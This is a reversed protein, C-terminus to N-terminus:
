RIGENLAEEVIYENIHEFLQSITVLRYHQRLLRM